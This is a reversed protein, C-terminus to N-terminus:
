NSVIDQVWERKFNSIVYLSSVFHLIYFSSTMLNASYILLNIALMFYLICYIKINTELKYSTNILRSFNSFAYDHNEYFSIWM